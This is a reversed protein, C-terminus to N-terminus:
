RGRSPRDPEPRDPVRRRDGLAHRARRLLRGRPGRVRDCRLRRLMAVVLLATVLEVAPYRIPSAHTVTAAAAGCRRALLRGPHQRRARDGHGCGMCASPPHVISRRLPVRAAVVNLFSGIALGPLAVAFALASVAGAIPLDAGATSIRDASLRERRPEARGSARPVVHDQLGSRDDPVVAAAPLCRTTTTTTALTSGVPSRAVTTSPRRARHRMRNGITGSTSCSGGGNAFGNGWAGYTENQSLLSQAGTSTRRHDLVPHRGREEGRSRPREAGYSPTLFAPTARTSSTEASSSGTRRRSRSAARSPARSSSASTPTSRETRRCRGRAVCRRHLDALDLEDAPQELYLGRCRRNRQQQVDAAM